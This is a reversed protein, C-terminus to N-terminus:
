AKERKGTQKDRRQRRKEMEIMRLQTVHANHRAQKMENAVDVDVKSGALAAQSQVFSDLMAEPDDEPEPLLIKTGAAEIVQKENAETIKQIREIEKEATNPLFFQAQPQPDTM